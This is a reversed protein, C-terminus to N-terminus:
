YEEPLRLPPLLYYRGDLRAANFHVQFPMGTATSLHLQVPIVIANQTPSTDAFIAERIYTTPWNVELTVGDQIVQGFDKQFDMLLDTPSYLLLMERVPATGLQMLKDYVQKNVLQQRITDFNNTQLAQHVLLTLLEIKEAGAQQNHQQRQVALSDPHQAAASNTVVAALVLMVFLFKYKAM